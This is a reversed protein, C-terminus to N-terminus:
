RACNNFVVVISNIMPVFFNLNPAPHDPTRHPGLQKPHLKSHVPYGFWITVKPATLNLPLCLFLKM